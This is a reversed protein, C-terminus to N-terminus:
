RSVEVLHLQRTSQSGAFLAKGTEFEACSVFLQGVSARDLQCQRVASIPAAAPEGDGRATEVNAISVTVGSIVAGSPDRVTGTVKATPTQAWAVGQFLFFLVLGWGLATGTEKALVSTLRSRIM